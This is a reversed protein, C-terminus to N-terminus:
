VRTVGSISELQKFFDVAEKGGAVSTQKGTDTQLKITHTAGTATTGSTAPQSVSSSFNPPTITPFSAASPAPLVPAAVSQPLSPAPATPATSTSDETTQKAITKSAEFELQNAARQEFSGGGTRAVQEAKQGKLYQDLFEHPLNNTRLWNGANMEFMRQQNNPDLSGSTSQGATMRWVIQNRPTNFEAVASEYAAQKLEAAKAKIKDDGVLGGSAFKQIPQGNKIADFAAVGNKAVIAAPMVYEGNSLLAPIEDSTGTGKGTILGGTAHAAATNVTEVTITHTSSTPKSIRAIAEDVAKSDANMILMFKKSELEKTIAAIQTQVGQLQTKADEAGAKTDALRQKTAGQAADNTKLINAQAKDTIRVIEDVSDFYQKGHKKADEANKKDSLALQKGLELIKLDLEEATKFDGAAFAKKQDSSLKRLRTLDEETKQNATLELQHLQLKFDAYSQEIGKRADSLTKSENVLRVEEQVLRSVTASYDKEMSRYIGLKAQLSQEDLAATIYASGKKAEMEAAFTEQTIRLKEAGTHAIILLQADNSAKTAQTILLEKELTSLTSLEIEAKRSALSSQALENRRAAQEDEAKSVEKLDDLVDKVSEKSAARKKKNIVEQTNGSTVEIQKQIASEKAEFANIRLNDDDLQKQEYFSLKGQEHLKKNLNGAEDSLTRLALQTSDLESKLTGHSDLKTADFNKILELDQQNLSKLKEETLKLDDLLVQRKDANKSFDLLNGVNFEELKAIKAHLEDVQSQASSTELKVGEANLKQVSDNIAKLAENYANAKQEARGETDRIKNLIEYLAYLAIVAVGVPGGVFAMASKAAGGLRTMAVGSLNSAEALSIEAATLKYNQSTLFSKAAAQSSTAAAAKAMAATQALQADVLMASSGTALENARALELTANAALLEAQALEMTVKRELAKAEAALVKQARASVTRQENKVIEATHAKEAKIGAVVSSAYTTVAATAKGAMVVAIGTLINIVAGGNDKLVTYAANVGDLVTLVGNSLPKELAKALNTFANGIDAYGASLTGASRAAAGEYAKLAEPVKRGFEESTLTGTAIFERLSGVTLGFAKAIENALGPMPEVIQKFDQMNVVGTGLAQSLGYISQSMQMASAGTKSALNSFGELLQMSQQRTIIGSRELTLFASYSGTLDQVSKHHRQSLDILYAESAAYDQASTTLGSLRIRLDQTQKVSDILKNTFAVISGVAFAGAIMSGIGDFAGELKGRLGGASKGASDVGSKLNDIGQKANALGQKLGEALLTLKIAITSNTAM